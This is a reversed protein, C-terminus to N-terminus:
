SGEPSPSPPDEGVLRLLLKRLRPSRQVERQLRRIERENVILPQREFRGDPSYSSFRIAYQGKKEGLEYRLLQLAPQHLGGEIAAEELILGTGWPLSFQRPVRRQPM